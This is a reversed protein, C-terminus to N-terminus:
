RLSWMPYAFPRPGAFQFMFTMDSNGMRVLDGHTLPSEDDFICRRNIFTGNTIGLDRIYYGNVTPVIASHKRSVPPEDVVVDNDPQRGM